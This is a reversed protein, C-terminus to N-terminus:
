RGCEGLLLLLLLEMFMRLQTDEGMDGKMWRSDEKEEMDKDTNCHGKFSHIFSRVDKRGVQAIKLEFGRSHIVQVLLVMM